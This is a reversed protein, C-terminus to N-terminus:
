INSYTTKQYFKIVIEECSTVVIERGGKPEGLPDLPQLGFKLFGFKVM